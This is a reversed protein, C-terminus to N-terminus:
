IEWFLKDGDGHTFHWRDSKDIMSAYSTKKHNIYKLAFPNGGSKVFGFRKLVAVLSKNSCIM